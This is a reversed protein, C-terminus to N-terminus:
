WARRRCVLGLCLREAPYVRLQDEPGAGSRGEAGPVGRCLPGQGTGAATAEGAVNLKVTDKPNLQGTSDVATLTLGKEPTAQFKVQGQDTTANTASVQFKFHDGKTFFGPVGPELYFDKTVLLRREVSAFRSGKDQAVAYVRFSTINDPLTFTVTAKGQADTHIKPNFYAVAEFRRRLKAVVEASLGGGGTLPEVRSPYFPTQHLLLTRLEGTFVALPVDFRTLKDLTPTKFGTLALVAEDVVALALETEVGQGKPTAATLEVTVQDGPRARWDAVAPNIKVELGEPDKLVPLNLNGWVFGPAEIDYAGPRVPFDGRASVGLVSVYVNPGYEPKMVLPLTKSGKGGPIVQHSLVGERELTVLYYAIPSKPSIELNATDGPKYAPRDAWLSLPQYPRDRKEEPIYQWQSEVFTASSISKGQPDTYTFALLYRGPSGCDFRFPAEGNKLTLDSAFSRRWSPEDEWYVDGQENRKATYSWSRELVEAKLNGQSVKKGQKDVVVVTLEHEEGLQFKDQHRSIGVLYEPEVQFTKSTSAARGDFDVVTATVLIGERGALLHRDLPFEVTAKGQDDLIAQGSEILINAESRSAKADSPYGFAYADFGPVRYDTPAQQIRWRVQGHKVQGGAYYAGSVVIRVFEAQREQNVISKDERSFREFSIDTFHRPPKFEQVQFTATTELKPAKGTEETNGEGEEGSDDEDSKKAKSAAKAGAGYTMSMTYTGMPWYAQTDMEGAATGFDSLAIKKVFVQEGRPNTVEFVCDRAQPPGIAGDRYERVTGKFFVKEGPRYVGRETFLVGKLNQAEGPTEVHWVEESQIDGQPKVEIYSADGTRGALLFTIDGKDVSRKEPAFSGLKKLSIGELEHPSYTLIGDKDTQGLPFVEAQRTFALVQVDPAPAGSKLSTAWLLIGQDGIKYTLGLDTIRFLRLPSAAKSGEANDRVRILELAGVEKHQRFSLPVSVALLRNKEGGAPFLQHEELPAAAFPAYASKGEVLPKLQGAATNLEDLTQKLDAGAKEAALAQPLLLPPVRVQGLSINDVNAVKVHVLQQSDREIVRKDGVFEVTPPRNPMMFTTVTPFYTRGLVAVGEKLTVFHGAGYKFNAKIVAVGEPTVSSQSWDVKLRPLFRLYSQLIEIPVPQSFHIRVEEKAAVPEIKTITFNKEPNFAAAPPPKPAASAAPPWWGVTLAALALMVFFILSKGGSFRGLKKINVM